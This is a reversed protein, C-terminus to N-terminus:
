DYACDRRFFVFVSRDLCILKTSCVSQTRRDNHKIKDEILADDMLDKDATAEHGSGWNPGVM